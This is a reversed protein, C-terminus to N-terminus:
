PSGLFPLTSGVLPCALLHRHKLHGLWPLAMLTISTHRLLIGFISNCCYPRRRHIYLCDQSICVRISVVLMYWTYRVVLDYSAQIAQLCDRYVLTDYLSRRATLANCILSTSNNFLCQVLHQDSPLETRRRGSNCQIKSTHVLTVTVGVAGHVM